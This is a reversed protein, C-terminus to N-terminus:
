PTPVTTTSTSRPWARTAPWSCPSASPSWTRRSRRWTWRRAPGRGCCTSRRTGSRPRRAPRRPPGPTPGCGADATGRSTARSSRAGARRRSRARSCASCARGAPTWWTRRACSRCCRRRRPWPGSPRRSPRPSSARSTTTANPPRWRPRAAGRPHGHPHHGRGAQRGGQLGAEHGRRARARPGPRQLPAQGRARAGHGPPDPQHHRRLQRPRGHPRRLEGGPRHAGRGRGPGAKDAEELAARVTALM